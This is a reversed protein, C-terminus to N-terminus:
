LDYVVGATCKAFPLNIALEPFIETTTLKLVPALVLADSLRTMRITSDILILM